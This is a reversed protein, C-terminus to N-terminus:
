SWYKCIVEIFDSNIHKNQVGDGEIKEIRWLKIINVRADNLSLVALFTIITSSSVEVIGLGQYNISAIYMLGVIVPIASAGIFLSGIAKHYIPKLNGLKERFDEAIDIRKKIVKLRETDTTNKEKHKEAQIASNYESYLGERNDLVYEQVNRILYAPIGFFIAYIGLVGLILYIYTMLDPMYIYILIISIILLICRLGRERRTKGLIFGKARYLFDKISISHIVEMDLIDSTSLAISIIQFIAISMMRKYMTNPTM